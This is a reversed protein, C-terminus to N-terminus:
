PSETIVGAIETSDATSPSLTDAGLRASRTTGIETVIRVMRNTLWRNPVCRIPASNPGTIAIQNTTM